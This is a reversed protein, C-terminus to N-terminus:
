GCYGTNMAHWIKQGAAPPLSQQWVNALLMIQHKGDRSSFAFVTYGPFEGLHGWVAGCSLQPDMLGLGYGGPHGWRVTTEMQRLLPPSLLRGSLLARYFHAIDDATSVIAAAAWAVTPSAVFDVLHGNLRIYGDAHSGTIHTTTGFSTDNLGLPRVIRQSLESALPRGTVKEVILGLLIYNTDSYSYRRGPPFLPKHMFAIKLLQRPTWIYGSDGRLYPKPVAPDDGYSFLGSTHNLLERLTINEGNPVLGPLWREVTDDLAIKQEGLLQLVVTAVFTKTLSGVRFRDTVRIPTRRELNAYGSALRLTHGGTRVLMVAGPVGAAVLSDLTQQLSQRSAGPRTPAAAAAAVLSTALALTAISALMSLRLADCHRRSRRRRNPMPHVLLRRWDRYTSASSPAIAV